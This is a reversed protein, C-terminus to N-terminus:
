VNQLAKKHVLSLSPEADLTVRNIAMFSGNAFSQQHCLLLTWAITSSYRSLTCDVKLSCTFVSKFGFNWSNPFDAPEIAHPIYKKLAVSPKNAFLSRLNFSRLSFNRVYQLFIANV